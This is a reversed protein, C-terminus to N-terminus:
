APPVGCRVLRFLGSEIAGITRDSFESHDKKFKELMSTFLEYGSANMAFGFAESVLSDLVPYKDPFLLRLHKSAYSVGLGKIADGEAIVAKIDSQEAAHALWSSLADRLSTCEPDNVKECHRQLNGWVRNGTSGGWVCVQRCISLTDGRKLCEALRTELAAIDESQSLLEIASDLARVSFKLNLFNLPSPSQIFGTDPSYDSIVRWVGDQCYFPVPHKFEAGLAYAHTDLDVRAWGKVPKPLNGVKAGTEEISQAFDKNLIYAQM